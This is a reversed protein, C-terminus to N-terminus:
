KAIRINKLAALQTQIRVMIEKAKIDEVIQLADSLNGAMMDIYIQESKYDYKKSGSELEGNYKVLTHNAEAVFPTGGRAYEKPFNNKLLEFDDGLSKYRNNNV